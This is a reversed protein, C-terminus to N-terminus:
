ARPGSYTVYSDPTEYFKIEYLSAGNFRGALQEWIWLAMHEASAQEVVDNLYTHDLRDIVRERVLRGVEVFDIVMYGPPRVEGELTVELRFTHGHLPESGGHYHILNHAADFRFARTILVTM